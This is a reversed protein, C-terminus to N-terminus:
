PSAGTVCILQDPRPFLAAAPHTCQQAEPVEDELRAFVVWASGDQSFYQYPEGQPNQPLEGGPAHERLACGADLEAYVCFSQANNGTRPFAGNDEFYAAAIGAIQALHQRRIEDRDGAGPEPTPTTTAPRPSPSPGFTPSAGPTFTPFPTALPRSIAVGPRDPAQWIFFLLVFIGVCFAIVTHPERHPERVPDPRGSGPEPM